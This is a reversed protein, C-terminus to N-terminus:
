ILTLQRSLCRLRDYMNILLEQMSKSLISINCDGYRFLLFGKIDHENFPVFYIKQEVKNCMFPIDFVSSMYIAKATVEEDRCVISVQINPSLSNISKIIKKMNLTQLRFCCYIHQIGLDFLQGIEIKDNYIIVVDYSHFNEECYTKNISYDIGHVTIAGENKVGIISDMMTCECSIDLMLVRGFPRIISGFFMAIDMADEGIFAIVRNNRVRGQKEVAVVKDHSFLSIGM